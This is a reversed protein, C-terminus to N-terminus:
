SQVAAVTPLVTSLAAALSPDHALRFQGIGYAIVILIIAVLILTPWSIKNM